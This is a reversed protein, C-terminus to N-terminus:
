SQGFLEAASVTLGPPSLAIEGHELVVTAIEGGASRAHHTVTRKSADVILYHEITPVSFYERYKEVKDAKGTSPSLVEVVVVPRDNIMSDPNVIGGLMVSADPERVTDEAILIGVGDTFVTCDLTAREIATNLASAIRLKSQNHRLVEPSMVIVKGGVLEYRGETQAEGWVLFEDARMRIKPPANM